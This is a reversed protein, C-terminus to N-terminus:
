LGLRKELDEPVPRSPDAPLVPPPHLPRGDPAHPQAPAPPQAAAQARTLEFQVRALEASKRSLERKLAFSRLLDVLMFLMAGAVFSFLLWFGLVMTWHHKFFTLPISTGLEKQNQFAFVALLVILALLLFRKVYLM